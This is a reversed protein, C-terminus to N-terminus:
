LPTTYQHFLEYERFFCRLWEGDSIDNLTLWGATSHPAIMQSRHEILANRKQELLDGIFLSANMAQMLRMGFLMQVSNKVIRRPRPWLTAQFGVWPWHHWAWVPYEMVTMRLQLKTIATRVIQRTALHDLPAEQAYPIFVQGPQVTELIEAVKAGAAQDSAQLAGDKFNLFHINAAPVGLRACASSAESARLKALEDPAVLHSHSASGDTMFVVTVKGGQNIKKIIAGGCGLTEDDQHPAFVVADDALESADIPKVQDIMRQWMFQQVATRVRM